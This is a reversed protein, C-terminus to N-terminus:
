QGAERHDQDMEDVVQAFLTMDGESPAEGLMDKFFATFLDADSVKRVDGLDRRRGEGVLQPRDIQLTNPYVERIRTMADFVPAANTLVAKIYDNRSEDSPAGALLDDFDGEIVRMDHRPSLEHPTATCQGEADMDVITVGKTHTVESFSYKLLSGSYHVSGEAPSQPGHLHGLATFDFANFREGEITGAGGVTLPRESESIACGDVFAHAVLVSRAGDPIEGALHSVMAGMAADHDHIDDRGLFERVHSPEAYPLGFVLVSGHEDHCQVPASADELDGFIHLGNERFISNGFSLRDPSDHNGAIVVTPTKLDNIIRALTRDLLAVAPHPPVARDYIDGAIVLLDPKEKEILGVLQDLVHEQDDTMYVGHLLRGLHWDSTHLIRM